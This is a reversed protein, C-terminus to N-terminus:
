RLSIRTRKETFGECNCHAAESWRVAKSGTRGGAHRIRRSLLTYFEEANATQAAAQVDEDSAKPAGLRLNERITGTFLFVDQSVLGVQRRLYDLPLDRVDHSGLQVSGNDVEYFRVLLHCATTKGVGSVGVM